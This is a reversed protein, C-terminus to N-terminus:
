EISIWIERLGDALKAILKERDVTEQESMM